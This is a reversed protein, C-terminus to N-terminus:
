GNMRDIKVAPPLMLVELVILGAFVWILVKTAKLTKGAAVVAQEITARSPDSADYCLEVDAKGDKDTDLKKFDKKSVICDTEYNEGEVEYQLKARIQYITRGTDTLKQKGKILTGSTEIGNAWIDNVNTATEQRGPKSVLLFVLLLVTFILDGILTPVLKRRKM